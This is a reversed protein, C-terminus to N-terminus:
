LGAELVKRRNEASIRQREAIEIQARLETQAKLKALDANFEVQWLQPLAAQAEPALRMVNWTQGKKVKWIDYIGKIYTHGNDLNSDSDMWRGILGGTTVATTTFSPDAWPQPKDAEARQNATIWASGALGGIVALVALGATGVFLAKLFSWFGGATRRPTVAASTAALTPPEARPTNPTISSM